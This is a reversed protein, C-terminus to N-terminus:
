GKMFRKRDGAARDVQERIFPYRAYVLKANEFSFERSKGDIVVPASWATTIKALYEITRERSEEASPTQMVEEALLENVRDDRAAKAIESDPGVVRITLGIPKKDPGVIKVDIGEDQRKAMDDFASLDVGKHDQDAM